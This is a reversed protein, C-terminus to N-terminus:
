EEEESEEEGLAANVEDLEAQLAEKRAKLSEESDEAVVAPTNLAHATGSSRARADQVDINIDGPTPGQLHRVSKGNKSIQYKGGNSTTFVRTRENHSLVDSSKLGMAKAVKEFDAPASKKKKADKAVVTPEAVGLADTRTIPTEFEGGAGLEGAGGAQGSPTVNEPEEEDYASGEGSELTAVAVGEGEDKDKKAM